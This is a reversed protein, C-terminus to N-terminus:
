RGVVEAPRVCASPDLRGKVAFVSTLGEQRIEALAPQRLAWVREPSATLETPRNLDLTPTTVLYDYDGRNVAQVMGFCTRIPRFDGGPAERGLYQVWNDLRDGYLTYQTFGGSSGAVAIRKGTLPKAWRSVGDPQFSFYDRSYRNRLYDDASAWLVGSGAVAVLGVALVALPVSRRAAVVVLVVAAVAAFGFLVARPMSTSAVTWSSASDSFLGTILLAGFGGVALPLRIRPPTLKPELALLCLGLCLVPVLYRFNATFSYPLGEPGAATLPTFVYAVGGVVSAVALARVAPLRPRIVGILSGAVAGGLILAWLPGLVNRVGDFIWTGWVRGDPNVFIYHAVSYPDRGELGRGPGPLDIPGLSQVWPFPNGSHILDRLPWLGATVLGGILLAGLTTWRAGHPAIAILVAALVGFAALATLKTGLALGAALGVTFLLPVSLRLTRDSAAPKGSGAVLLGGSTLLLAAPAVDNAMTGAERPIMNGTDLVIAAAMFTLPGVGFRSGICWAGLLALGLWGLNILPSLLDRDLAVMGLAHQLESNEPYFWNLYQTDTFHLPWASGDAAIRASIPGHYWLTDASYMGQSWSGQVGTWWHAALFISAAAVVVLSWKGVPEGVPECSDPEVPIRAMLRPLGYRVMGLWLLSGILFPVLDFLGAVSLIQCLVTLGALAWVLEVLRAPAGMWSPFLTSRFLRGSWGFSAAIVALSLMGILYHPFTVTAM